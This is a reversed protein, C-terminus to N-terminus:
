VEMPKSHDPQRPDALALARDEAATQPDPNAANDVEISLGHIRPFWATIDMGNDLLFNLHSAAAEMKAIVRTALSAGLLREIQQHSLARMVCGREGNGTQSAVVVTIAPTLPDDTQCVVDISRTKVANM